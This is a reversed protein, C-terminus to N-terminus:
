ITFNALLLQDTSTDMAFVAINSFQMVQVFGSPTIHEHQLKNVAMCYLSCENAVAPWKVFNMAFVTVNSFHM